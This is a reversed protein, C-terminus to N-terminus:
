YSNALERLQSKLEDMGIERAADRLGRGIVPVGNIDPRITVITRHKVTVGDDSYYTTKTSLDSQPDGPVTITTQLARLEIGATHSTARIRDAMEDHSLQQDVPVKTIVVDAVLLSNAPPHEGEQGSLQSIAKNLNSYAGRKSAGTTWKAQTAVKKGDSRQTLVDAKDTADLPSETVKKYPREHILERWKLLEYLHGSTQGPIDDLNGGIATRVKALLGGPIHSPVGDEIISDAITKLHLVIDHAM